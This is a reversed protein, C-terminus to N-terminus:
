SSRDRLAEQIINAVANRHSGDALRAIYETEVATRVGFLAATSCTRQLSRTTLDPLPGAQLRRFVDVLLTLTGADLESPEMIERFYTADRVLTLDVRQSLTALEALEPSACALDLREVVILFRPRSFEQHAVFRMLELLAPPCRNCGAHLIIWNAEAAAARIADVLDIPTGLYNSIRFCVVDDDSGGSDASGGTVVSVVEDVSQADDIVVTTLGGLRHDTEQRLIEIQRRALVLM